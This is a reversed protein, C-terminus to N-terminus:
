PQAGTARQRSASYGSRTRVRADASTTIRVSVTRWLGDRREDNSTCGIRYDSMRGFGSMGQLPVFQTISM